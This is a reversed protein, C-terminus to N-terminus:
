LVGKPSEQIHATGSLLLIPSTKFLMLTLASSLFCLVKVKIQCMILNLFSPPFVDKHFPVM